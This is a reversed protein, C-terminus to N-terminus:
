IINMEKGNELKMICAAKAWKYRLGSVLGRGYERAEQENIFDQEDYDSYKIRMDVGGNKNTTYTCLDFRAIM